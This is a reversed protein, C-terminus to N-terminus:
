LLLLCNNKNSYKKIMLKFGNLYEEVEVLEMMISTFMELSVGVNKNSSEKDFLIYIHLFDKEIQALTAGEKILNFVKWGKSNMFRELKGNDIVSIYAKLGM